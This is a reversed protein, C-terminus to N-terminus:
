EAAGCVMGQLAAGDRASRLASQAGGGAGRGGAGGWRGTGGLAAGGGGGGCRVKSYQEMTRRLANQADQTMSDAEDLILLKYPPCPYGPVPQGVAAAAFAKVQDDHQQQKCDRPPPPAAPARPKTAACRLLM